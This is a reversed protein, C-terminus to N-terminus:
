KELAGRAAFSRGLAADAGGARRAGDRAGRLRERPPVRRAASAIGDPADRLLGRAGAVSVYAQLFASASAEWFASAWPRAAEVDEGRVRAPDLLASFAAEHLSRVIGAADRLPSGKRRREAAPRRRDGDLDLFVFDNGTHLVKGLDLAGLIRTRPSSPRRGILAGFRRLAEERRASSSRRSSPTARPSPARPESSSACAAAPSTGCRSTPAGSITPLGRSPRSPPRAGRTPSRATCSPRAAASCARRTSSRASRTACWRTRSRRSRPPARELSAGAAGRRPPRARARARLVPAGRGGHLLLRRERRARLRPARALAVPAARRPVYEVAGALAPVPRRRAARPSSARSSSGRARGRTTSSAACTSSSTSAGSRCCAPPVVASLAPTAEARAVPLTAEGAVIVGGRGALGGRAHSFLAEVLARASPPDALADHLM